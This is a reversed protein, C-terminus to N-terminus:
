AQLMILESKSKKPFESIKHFKARRNFHRDISNVTVIEAKDDNRFKYHLINSLMLEKVDIM